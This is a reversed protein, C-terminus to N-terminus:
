MVSQKMEMKIIYSQPFVLFRLVRRIEKSDREVRSISVSLKLDSFSVKFIRNNDRVMMGFDDFKSKTSVKYSIVEHKIKKKLSNEILLMWMEFWVPELFESGVGWFKNKNLKM